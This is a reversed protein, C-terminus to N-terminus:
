GDVKYGIHGSRFFLNEDNRTGDKFFDPNELAQPSFGFGVQGSQEGGRVRMENRASGRFVIGGEFLDDGVGDHRVFAADQAVETAAGGPFGAQPRLSRDANASVDIIAVQHPLDHIGGGVAGGYIALNALFQMLDGGPFFFDYPQEVVVAIFHPLDVQADDVM